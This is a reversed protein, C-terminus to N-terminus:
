LEIKQKRRVGMQRDHRARARQHVAIVIAPIVLLAAGLGIGIQLM